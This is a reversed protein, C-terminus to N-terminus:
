KRTSDIAARILSEDVDDRLVVNGIATPLVFRIRASAVKKDSRMADILDDSSVDPVNVPLNARAILAEIRGCDAPSIMNLSAALRAAMVMGIAVCEGHLLAYNTVKEIAHGFTHGFNLHARVNKEFPDEEVVGAKITVNHAILKTLYALDLAVARDISSELEVFGVADRIVEHKICEALGSRFERPPLTQLVAPDIIVAQPQHFAGILNKGAAHNVGTKGGVSADVMALLTTPVQFFPVGRLVTAAVFGSLDGVVGGGLAIVPTSREIRMELLKDYCFRVTDLNKQDEGPPITVIIPHFGASRLSLEVAPLHHKAVASDTIVVAKSGRPMFMGVRSLVGPEVTIDYRHDALQVTVVPM